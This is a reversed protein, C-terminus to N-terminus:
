MDEILGSTMSSPPTIVFDALVIRNEQQGGDNFVYAQVSSFKDVM